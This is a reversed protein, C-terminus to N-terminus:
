HEDGGHQVTGTRGTDPRASVEIVHALGVVAIVLVVLAIIKKM